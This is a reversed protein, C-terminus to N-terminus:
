PPADKVSALARSFLDDRPVALADAIGAVLRITLNPARGKEVEWVHSKTCGAATAVEQLTLGLEERRQRMFEHFPKTRKVPAVYGHAALAADIASRARLLAAIQEGAM